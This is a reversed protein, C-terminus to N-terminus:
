RSNGGEDLSLIRTDAAIVLDAMNRGMFGQILDESFLDPVAHLRKDNHKAGKRLSDFIGRFGGFNWTIRGYPVDSGVALNKTFPPGALSYAILDSEIHVDRKASFIYFINPRRLGLARAEVYVSDAEIFHGGGGGMHVAIVPHDPHMLAIAELGEPPTYPTDSGFHFAPVAGLGIIENLVTRVPDSDIPYANQAPNMKVIPLGLEEVCFRAMEIAGAVGLAKPDTWGAPIIRHPYTQAMAEISVNAGKLLEFNVKQDAGYDLVNPNQWCLAADVGATNMENVLEAASIPQGHYYDPYETMRKVVRAPLLAPDSPHADGDIVVTERAERLWSLRAEIKARASSALKM